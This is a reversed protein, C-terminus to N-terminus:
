KYLKYSTNLIIKIKVYIFYNFNIILIFINIMSNNM